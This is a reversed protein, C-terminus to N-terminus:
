LTRWLEIFGKCGRFREYTRFLLGLRLGLGM